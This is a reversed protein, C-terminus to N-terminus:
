PARCGRNPEARGARLDGPQYSARCGEGAHAVRRRHAEGGGSRADVVEFAVNIATGTAMHERLHGANFGGDTLDLTGVGFVREAGADTRLTFSNVKTISPQDVAIVLGTASGTTPAVADFAARLEDTAM